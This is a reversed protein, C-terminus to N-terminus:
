LVLLPARNSVRFGFGSVRFGFGSVRFGFGSVQFGLGSVGFGLGTDRSGGGDAITNTSAIGTSKQDDLGLKEIGFGSARLSSLM